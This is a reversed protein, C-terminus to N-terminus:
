LNMKGFKTPKIRNPQPMVGKECGELTFFDSM